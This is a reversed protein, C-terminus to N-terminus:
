TADGEKVWGHWGCGPGSLHVSPTLTVDHVGTGGTVAWRGPGPQETDPVGRDKFWCLVYHVGANDGNVGFCKPCLFMLGQAEALTSVHKLHGTGELRLLQVDLGSLKM